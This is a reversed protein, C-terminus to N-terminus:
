PLILFSAPKHSPITRPYGGCSETAFNQFLSLHRTLHRSGQTAPWAVGLEFLYDIFLAQGVVDDKALWRVRGKRMMHIPHTSNRNELSNGSKTLVSSRGDIPWKLLVM